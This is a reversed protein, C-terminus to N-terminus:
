LLRPVAIPNNENDKGNGDQGNEMGEQIIEMLVDRKPEKNAKLAHASPGKDQERSLWNTIFAKIGRATKRRSPNSDLWGKMKKLEQTVDVCPYLDSWVAVQSGQVSYFSKDNLPLDIVSFDNEPMAASKEAGHMYIDERKEEGEEEVRNKDLPNVEQKRLHKRLGKSTALLKQNERYGKMYDKMYDRRAEIRELNQHKGWNPITVAGEIIEIMDFQAFTQLALEIVSEKRRFITSFMKANYPM